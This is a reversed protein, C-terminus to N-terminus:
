QGSTFVSLLVAVTFQIPPGRHLRSTKTNKRVIETGSVISAKGVLHRCNEFYPFIQKKQGKHGEIKMM